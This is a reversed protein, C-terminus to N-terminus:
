AEGSEVLDSDKCEEEEGLDELEKEIQKKDKQRGRHKLSKKDGDFKGLHDYNHMGPRITPKM